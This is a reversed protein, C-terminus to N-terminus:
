YASGCSDPIPSSELDSKRQFSTYLVHSVGAEKAANVINEHQKVRQDIESGSVFYLKDVGKFAKILSDYDTYNGIRLEVGDPISTEAKSKNRAFAILNSPDTKQALFELVSGGLPGTVGTVLIKSM